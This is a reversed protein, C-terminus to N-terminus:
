YKEIIHTIARTRTTFRQKKKIRDIKALKDKELRVSIKIKNKKKPKPINTM